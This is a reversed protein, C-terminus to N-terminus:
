NAIRKMSSFLVWLIRDAREAERAPLIPGTGISSGSSEPHTWLELRRRGCHAETEVSGVHVGPKLTHDARVVRHEIPGHAM